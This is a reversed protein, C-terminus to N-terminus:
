FTITMKHTYLLQHCYFLKDDIFHYEIMRTAKLHDNSSLHCCQTQVFIQWEFIVEWRRRTMATEREERMCVCMSDGFFKTVVMQLEINCSKEWTCYYHYYHHYVICFSSLYSLVFM